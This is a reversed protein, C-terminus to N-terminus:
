ILRNTKAFNDIRAKLENIIQQRNAQILKNKSAAYRKIHCMALFPLLFPLVLGNIFIVFFVFFKLGSIDHSENNFDFLIPPYQIENEPLSDIALTWIVSAILIWIFHKFVFRYGMGNHDYLNRIAFIGKVCFIIIFIIIATKGMSGIILHYLGVFSISAIVLLLILICFIFEKDLSIVRSPPAPHDIEMRWVDIFYRTWIFLWFLFSLVSFWFLAKLPFIPQDSSIRLAEDLMFVNLCFLFIFFPAYHIEKLMLVEPLKNVYTDRHFSLMSRNLSLRIDTLFRRCKRSYYHKNNESITRIIKYAKYNELESIDISSSDGPIEKEIDKRIKILISLFPNGESIYPMLVVLAILVGLFTQSQGLFDIACITM